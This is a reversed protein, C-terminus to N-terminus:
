YLWKAVTKKTDKFPIGAYKVIPNKLIKGNYVHNLYISGSAKTVFQQTYLSGKVTGSFEINGNCYIEGTILVHDDIKMHSKIRNQLEGKPRIYLVAGEIETNKHIIFDSNRNNQSNNQGTPIVNKDFLTVSSPYSLLCREGITIKKTAIAQISGKFNNQVVIEPAILIVDTLTAASSVVIKSASQIIINGTINENGLFIPTPDYLLMPQNDFSNKIEKELPVMLEEDIFVGNTFSEIYSIWKNDLPPITEKSQYVNGYYLSSGQYYNGSINGAKIGQTPVYSNGELRTDGVIVLPANKDAIYVNPTKLGIATGSFAVKRIKRNNTIVDSVTKTWIGHYTAILKTTKSDVSNQITDESIVPTQLSVLLQHNALEVATILEQSKIKFFSQVHTLLLFASLLIAIIVSVLLAFQMAQAKIKHFIKM